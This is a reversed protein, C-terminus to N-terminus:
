QAVRASLPLDRSSGGVHITRGARADHWANDALSWYRLRQPPVHLTVVRVGGVPITVREFAALARPAFQVGDPAPDPAGVYVQVVEDGGRKGTNRVRCSVDLGGDAASHVALRSYSFTTYSLGFGFPFLPEIQQHDFWRYGVNIGESYHTRGETNSSAREPHAPDTALGDELRQPWTIPLRGAPNAKGTLLSAAAWGGEDGTYWMELVARVKGLWPMAVAEGTNLVVVTNPNAAAVAEILRDQEGPLGFWPRNRSWAFVVAIRASRAAEIAEAFAREKMEPTLWALRVQVPEGSGDANAEVRLAHPGATLKVLRRVNALGDTTPIVNARNPFVIDGHGGWWAMNGISRGDIWFRGTAGLVQLNIEYDGDAPVLLTGSWKVSAGGPLMAHARITQDIDAAAGSYASGGRLTLVRTLHEFATPPIPAGTMDDAVALRLGKSQTMARLAQWAGVERTARGYSQEEGTVIAFTQQAGPGILALSDLDARALPLIGDNKLLVSGRESLRQVIRANGAIDQAGVQHNPAHDLWGFRELQSLVHGAARDIDADTVTGREIAEGLNKSVGPVPPIPPGLYKPVPYRQEEPAGTTLAAQLDDEAEKSGPPEDPEKGLAFYAGPGTGPQEMDMGQTIFEAGHAAGWDSTVFGKFGIEGRLIGNLTAGNGCSYVSNIQNYSCMISAVGAESVDRFPAAYIERLAQGDVLANEGGDYAVYHKAQAMVGSSQAARVFHAALTGTLVPDEGLTNYAREFTPDRYINIYPQLIVDIGLARADRGILAGTAEADAVSFTSALTLTSPMGTSLHRVLVGQPGDAFRLDPIHLRPVGATWGAESQAAEAPERGGRIIAMKEERSMAALLQQVRASHREGQGEGQLEAAQTIRMCLLAGLATVFALHRRRTPRINKM